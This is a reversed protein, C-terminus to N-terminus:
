CSNIAVMLPLWPQQTFWLLDRIQQGISNVVRRLTYAGCCDVPHSREGIRWVHHTQTILGDSLSRQDADCNDTNLQPYTDNARIPCAQFCVGMREMVSSTYLIVYTRPASETTIVICVNRSTYTRHTARSSQLILTTSHLFHAINSAVCCKLLYHLAPRLTSQSPEVHKHTRTSRRNPLLNYVSCTCFSVHSLSYSCRTCFAKAM